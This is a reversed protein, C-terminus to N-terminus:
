MASFTYSVSSQVFILIAGMFIMIYTGITGDGGFFFGIVAMPVIFIISVIFGAFLAYISPKILDRDDKAMQWSQKLFGWGRALSDM